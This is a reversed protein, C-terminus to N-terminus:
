LFKIGNSVLHDKIEKIRELKDPAFGYVSEDKLSVMLVVRPYKRGKSITGITIEVDNVIFDIDNSTHLLMGKFPSVGKPLQIIAELGINGDCLLAKM